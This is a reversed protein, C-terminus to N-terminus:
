CSLQDRSITGTIKKRLDGTLFILEVNACQNIASAKLTEDSDPGKDAQETVCM